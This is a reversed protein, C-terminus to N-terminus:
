RVGHQFHPSNSIVEPHGGVLNPAHHSGIHRAEHGIHVAGEVVGADEDPHSASHHDHIAEMEDTGAIHEEEVSLILGLEPVRTVVHHEGRVEQVVPDRSMVDLDVVDEGNLHHLLVLAGTLLDESFSLGVGVFDLTGFEDLVSVVDVFGEAATVVVLDRTHLGVFEESLLRYKFM